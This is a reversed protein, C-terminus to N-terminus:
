LIREWICLTEVVLKVTKIFTVSTSGFVFNEFYHVQVTTKNCEITGYDSMNEIGACRGPKVTDTVIEGLM